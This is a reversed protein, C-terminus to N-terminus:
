STRRRSTPLQLIRHREHEHLGVWWAAVLYVLVGAGIRGILDPWTSGLAPRLLAHVAVMPTAALLPRGWAMGLFGALSAGTARCAMWPMAIASLLAAPVLTGIAAGTIGYRGICAISLGLNATAEVLLLGSLWAVRGTGWLAAECVYGPARVLQAVGLCALIVASEPFSEGIWLELFAPGGFVVSSVLPLGLLAGWRGAEPLFAAAGGPEVALLAFRPQLAERVRLLLQRPYEVLRGPVAYSTISAAPLFAGILVGDTKFLVREALDILFSFLSFGAIRRLMERRFARPNPLFGLVPLAAIVRCLAGAIGTAAGVLVLTRLAHEPRLLWVLLTVRLFLEGVKIANLTAIREHGRLMGSFASAPFAIATTLGLVRVALVADATLDPSLDFLRPVVPALLLVVAALVTGCGLYLALVTGGLTRLAAPDQEGRFRAAYRSVASGLGLYLFESYGLISEVLILVGYGADGARHIVFPTLFLGAAITIAFQGWGSVINGLVRSGPPDPATTM